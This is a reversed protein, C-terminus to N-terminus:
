HLRDWPRVGSIQLLNTVGKLKTEIISLYARLNSKLIEKAKQRRRRTGKQKESRRKPM